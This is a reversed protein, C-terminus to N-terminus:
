IPMWRLTRRRIYMIVANIIIAYVMFLLVVIVMRGALMYIQAWILIRGLGTQAALFEAGLTLGWAVGMAVRVGGIIEPIIAPVVVTRYIQYPSAGLTSAFQKYLPFVNSIANISNILVMVFVGFAIYIFNGIELGGFWALFLPILALLPICRIAALLPAIFDRVKESWGMVLGIGIGLLIGAISGGLLRALTVLSQKGLVLFAILYSYIEEVARGGTWFTSIGPLSVRFIYGISPLVNQAYRPNVWSVYVSAIEWVILIAVIGYLRRLKFKRIKHLVQFKV